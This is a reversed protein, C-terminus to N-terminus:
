PTPPKPSTAPPTGPVVRNLLTVLVAATLVIFSVDLFPIRFRNSATFAVGGILYSVMAMAWLLPFLPHRRIAPIFFSCFAGIFIPVVAVASLLVKPRSFVTPNLWPRWFSKTKL